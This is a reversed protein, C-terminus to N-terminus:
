RQYSRNAATAQLFISSIPQGATAKNQASLTLTVRPQVNPVTSCDVGGSGCPVFPDSAPVLYFRVNQVEVADATLPEYAGTVGRAVELRKDTTNLRFRVDQGQADVLALQTLPQVVSGVQLAIGQEAYYAYDIMGTHVERIISEVARRVNAQVLQNAYVRKQARSVTGFIDVAGTIVVSLLTAVVLLEITTFGSSPRNRSLTASPYM